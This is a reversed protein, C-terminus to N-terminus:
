FITQMKKKGNVREPGLPIGEGRHDLCWQQRLALPRLVMNKTQNQHNYTDPYKQLSRILLMEPENKGCVGDLTNRM